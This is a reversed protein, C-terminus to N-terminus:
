AAPCHLHQAGLLRHIPSAQCQGATGLRCGWSGETACQRCSTCAPRCIYAEQQRLARVWGRGAKPPTARLAAASAAPARMCGLRPACGMKSNMFGLAWYPPLAPRGVLQTLQDTVDFPSPGLLFYMDLVGGVISFRMTDNTLTVDMGNSNMMVM